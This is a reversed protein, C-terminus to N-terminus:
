IYFEPELLNLSLSAISGAWDLQGQEHSSCPCSKSNNWKISCILMDRFFRHYNCKSVFYLFYLSTGCISIISSIM